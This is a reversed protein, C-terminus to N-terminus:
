KSSSSVSWRSAEILEANAAMRDYDTAVDLMKRRTEEDHFMDALTRCEEARQRYDQGTLSYSAVM